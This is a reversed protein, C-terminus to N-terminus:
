KKKQIKGNVKIYKFYSNKYKDGTSINKNENVSQLYDYNTFYSNIIKHIDSISKKINETM